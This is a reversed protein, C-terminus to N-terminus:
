VYILDNHQISLVLIVNYISTTFFGFTLTPSMLSTPKIGPQPLNGPPPYPLGSWSEQRSLGLFLLAQYAVTWLTVFTLCSQLSKSNLCTLQVEIKSTSSFFFFLHNINVRGNFLITHWKCFRTAFDHLSFLAVFYKGRLNSFLLSVILSLNGVLSINVKNIIVKNIIM